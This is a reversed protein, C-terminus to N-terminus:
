SPVKQIADNESLPYPSMWCDVYTAGNMSANVAKFWAGLYQQSLSKLVKISIKAGAVLESQLLKITGLYEPTGTTMDSNDNARLEIDLGNDGGTNTTSLIVFNLYAEVQDDTIITSGGSKETEMDFVNTSVVGTSDLSGLNQSDSFVFKDRM